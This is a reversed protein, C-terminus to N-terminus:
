WTGDPVIFIKRRQRDATSLRHKSSITATVTTVTADTTATPACFETVSLANEGPFLLAVDGPHDRILECLRQEDSANGSTLMVCGAAVVDDVVAAASNSVVNNATSHQSSSSSVASASLTTSSSSTITGGNAGRVFGITTNSRRNLELYHFYVVVLANQVDFRNAV